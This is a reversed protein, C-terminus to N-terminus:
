RHRILHISSGLRQLYSVLDEELLRLYEMMNRNETWRVYGLPYDLGQEEYLQEYRGPGYSTSILFDLEKQYLDARNLHLGVDGVLVVRGKKRCFTCAQNIVANSVSSATVIVGDAGNGATRRFIEMANNESSTDALLAVDIGIEKAAELRDPDLDVGIVRCGNVKLMQVTLQGLLGLGMVVFVEGLTPHARRLGQLAISGMAVTAATETEVKGPIKVFLNEPVRIVEAHHTCQSGACAVRDGIQVKTIEAGVDVVIGAASYGIPTGDQMKGKIKTLTSEFGNEKINGFVKRVKEPYKWAQVWLPSGSSSLSSLETGISVCSNQVQVLITKPLLQPSPVEELIVQGQKVLLQKV